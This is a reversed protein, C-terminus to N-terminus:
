VNGEINLLKVVSIGIANPRKPARTAFVGHLNDDMYPKVILSYGRILHFHYILIIHSFGELDKLGEKYEENIVVKGKIEKASKPQIPTGKPMKFPSYIVGIPKYIIQKDM